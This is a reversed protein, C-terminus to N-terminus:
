SALHGAFLIHLASGASATEGQWADIADQRGVQIARERAKASFKQFIAAIADRCKGRDQAGLAADTGIPRDTDFSVHM